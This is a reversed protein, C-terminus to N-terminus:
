SKLGHANGRLATVSYTLQIPIGVKPVESLYRQGILENLRETTM